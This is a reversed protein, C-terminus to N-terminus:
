PTSNKREAEPEDKDTTSGIRARLALILEMRTAWQRAKTGDKTALAGLLKTLKRYSESQAIADVMPELKGGEAAIHMLFQRAASDTMKSLVKKALETMGVGSVRFAPGVLELDDNSETGDFGLSSLRYRLGQGASVELGGIKFLTPTASELRYHVPRGFGDLLVPTKRLEEPLGGLEAISLQGSETPSPLIGTADRYVEIASQAEAFRQATRSEGPVVLGLLVLSLLGAGVLCGAWFGWFAPHRRKALWRYYGPAVELSLQCGAAAGEVGVAPDVPEGFLAALVCLSGVIGLFAFGILAFVFPLFAVVAVTLLAGHMVDRLPTFWGAVVVIASTLATTV